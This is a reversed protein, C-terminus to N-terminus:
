RPAHNQSKKTVTSNVSSGYSANELGFSFIYARASGDDELKGAEIGAFGARSVAEVWRTALVASTGACAIVAVISVIIAMGLLGAGTFTGRRRHRSIDLMAALWLTVITFTLLPWLAYALVSIAPVDM